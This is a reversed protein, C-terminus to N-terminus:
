ELLEGVVVTYSRASPNMIICHAATLVWDPRILTGGCTHGGNERVSVQWPWAHPYADHGQVIRSSSPRVGCGLASTYCKAGVVPDKTPLCAPKVKDSLIAPRALQLVAIDDKYDAMTFGLNRHVKRVPINQQVSTESGKRYHSGTIIVSCPRM